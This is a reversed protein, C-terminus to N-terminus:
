PVDFYVAEAIRGDTALLGMMGGGGLVTTGDSALIQFTAHFGNPLALYGSTM